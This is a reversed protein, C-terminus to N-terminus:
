TSSLSGLIPVNSKFIVWVPQTSVLALNEVSQQTIKATLMEGSPLLVTVESNIGDHQIQMVNGYLRNRASFQKTSDTTLILDAGNILLVAENGIALALETVLSLELTAIIQEGGKLQVTVEANKEEADVGIVRGFLQNRASTRIVLRQLLLLTEPNDALSRNLQTLFLQHQQEIQLFLSLLAQGAKTLRSGGGKSGGTTTTVLTQPASNNARELIQWAGKYSLGSQKAAQNLSGTHEIAKLLGIIRNDLAGALRLEGEIWVPNLENHQKKLM